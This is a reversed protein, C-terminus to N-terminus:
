TKNRHIMLMEILPMDDNRISFSKLPNEDMVAGRELLLNISDLTRDRIACYLPTRGDENKANPDLGKDLLATMIEVSENCKHLLTSGYQDRVTVDAGHKIMAEVFENHFSYRNSLATFGKTDKADVDAGHSVLLDVMEASRACMIPTSGDEGKANVYAGRDLLMSTIKMNDRGVVRHLPTLDNYGGHSNASAGMCLLYEVSSPKMAGDASVVTQLLDNLVTKTDVTPNPSPTTTAHVRKRSIMM